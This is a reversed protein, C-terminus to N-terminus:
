GFLALVAMLTFGCLCCVLKRKRNSTSEVFEEVINEMIALYVFSGSGIAMSVSTFGEKASANKLSEKLFLGLGIGTPTSFSFVLIFLSGKKLTWCAKKVTIGLSMAAVTKHVCLALIIIMYGNDSVNSSGTALGTIFSHLTLILVLIVATIKSSSLHQDKEPKLPPLDSGTQEWSQHEASHDAISKGMEVQVLRRAVEYGTEFIRSSYQLRLDFGRKLRQSNVKEVSLKKEKATSEDKTVLRLKAGGNMNVASEDLLLGEPEEEEMADNQQAMRSFPAPSGGRWIMNAHMKRVPRGNKPNQKRGRWVPLVRWCKKEQDPVDSILPETLKSTRPGSINKETSRLGDHSKKLISINSKNTHPGRIELPGPWNRSSSHVPKPSDAASGGGIEIIAEHGPSLFLEIIMTLFFGIGMFLVSYPYGTMGLKSFGDWSDPLMHLLGSGLFVGGAGANAIGFYGRNSHSVRKLLPLLGAFFGLFM